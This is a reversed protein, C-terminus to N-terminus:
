PLRVDTQDVVDASVWFCMRSGNPPYTVLRSRSFAPLTWQPQSEVLGLM